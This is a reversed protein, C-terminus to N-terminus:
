KSAEGATQRHGAALMAAVARQKEDRAKRWDAWAQSWVRDLASSTPKTKEFQDNTM